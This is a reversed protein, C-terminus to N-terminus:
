RQVERVLEGYLKKIKKRYLLNDGGSRIIKHHRVYAVPMKGLLTEIEISTLCMGGFDNIVIGSIQCQPIKERILKQYEMLIKLPHDYPSGVLYIRHAERLAMVTTKDSIYSNLDLIVYDYHKQLNMILQKLSQEKLYYYENYDFLGPIIEVSGIKVVADEILDGLPIRKEYASILQYLNMDPQKKLKYGLEPNMLDLGMVLVKCKKSETLAIGLNLATTTAGSNTPSYVAIVQKFVSEVVVRRSLKISFGGRESPGPPPTQSPVESLVKFDYQRAPNKMGKHIRYCLSELSEGPMSIILDFVGINVMAQIIELENEAFLVIVQLDKNRSRVKKIFQALEDGEDSQDMYRNIVLVDFYEGSYAEYESLNELMLPASGEQEQETLQILRQELEPLGTMLLLKM